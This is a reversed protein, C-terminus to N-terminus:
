HHPARVQEAIAKADLSVESQEAEGELPKLSAVGQEVERDGLIVVNKASVNNAYRMQAKMSRKPALITSVEECRLATALSAAAKGANGLAVVVVDPGDSGEVAIEQDKLQLILRELGAAFGIAPTEPGGLLGILPDYRGGAILTGQSGANAPEFEFVTRNYYDLGRVLRHDIKYNFSPNASKLNELHEIVADWHEKAEGSIFDLSKPANEALEQTEPAKSDLVRLPARELRDRDVKPLRDGAAKFYKELESIYESRGDRDGLNNVLLTVDSIGLEQLFMWCLELMEADVEPSSDGIAECGFQHFQRVRGAQPREYRFMPMAYYLRVPQPLNQLGNEVYARCVSATGEPRLTISDGGHDEFSYMEKQVIDTEDGVGRQFLNTDEFTPTDIRSYGFRKAVKCATTYVQSWYPQDAPLIDATGRPRKFNM